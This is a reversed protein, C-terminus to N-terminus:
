IAKANIFCNAKAISHEQLKSRDRWNPRVEFIEVSQGNIRFSLDVERRIHPPPRRKEIFQAVLKECRKMDFESLTTIPRYRANSRYRGLLDDDYRIHERDGEPRGGEEGLLRPGPVRDDLSRLMVIVPEIDAHCKRVLVALAEVHHQLGKRNVAVSLDHQAFMLGLIVFCVLGGGLVSSRRAAAVPVAFPVRGSSAVGTAVNGV